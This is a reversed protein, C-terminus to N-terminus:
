KNKNATIVIRNGQISELTSDFYKRRFYEMQLETVLHEPWGNYQISFEAKKKKFSLLQVDVMGSADSKLVAGVEEAEAHSALNKVVLDIQRQSYLEKEWLRTLQRRLDKWVADVCQNAGKDLVKLKNSGPMSKVASSTALIEGQGPRLVDARLSIEHLTLNVGQYTSQSSAVELGLRVILGMGSTDATAADFVRFGEAKLKGGLRSATKRATSLYAKDLDPDLLISIRPNKQWGLIKKFRDLDSVLAAIEVDARIEVEYTGLETKEESVIELNKLYGTAHSLVQDRSVQFNEVVTRSEIRTGVAQEIAARKAEDLAKERAIAERGEEFFSVGKATVKEGAWVVVPIALLMFLLPIFRKMPMGM